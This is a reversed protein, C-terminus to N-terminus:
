KIYLMKSFYDIPLAKFAVYYADYENQNKGYLNQFLKYRTYTKGYTQIGLLDIFENIEMGDKLLGAKYEDLFYICTIDSDRLSFYKSCHPCKLNENEYSLAIDFYEEDGSIYISGYDPNFFSCPGKCEPCERITRSGPTSM